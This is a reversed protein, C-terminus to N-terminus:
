DAKVRRVDNGLAEAITAQRSDATGFPVPGFLRAAALHLADPGRLGANAHTVILVQALDLTAQDIPLFEIFGAAVDADLYQVMADIERAALQGMRVHRALLSAWEIRTWAVTLVRDHQKLLDDVQDSGSEPLYFKAIASTDLYVAGGM